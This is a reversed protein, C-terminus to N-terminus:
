DRAEDAESVPRRGSDQLADSLRAKASGPRLPKQQSEHPTWGTLWVIEYTAPLRGDPMGFGARYRSDAEAFLERRVPVRRRAAMANTEGMGRLDRMLSWVDRYTATRIQSDAVPLAFGARQLLAGLDRIEGMPLIRPSLGGATACESEALAARLEILTRGGFSAAVLLGDPRLARRAQILQGVPDNAWHLCLAHVILDHAGPDLELNEHDAVVRAGSLRNSWIEPWGTVVAPSSFKRNIEGLREMVEDAVADQLFRVPRAMARARARRRILSRRDVLAPPHSM